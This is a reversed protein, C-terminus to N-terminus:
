PSRNQSNSLKAHRVEQEIESTTSKQRVARKYISLGPCYSVARGSENAAEPRVYLGANDFLWLWDPAWGTEVYATAKACQFNRADTVYQAAVLDFPYFGNLGVSEQWFELWGGAAEAIWAGAAGEDAIRDLDTPTLVWDRAAEYPILTIPVDTSLLFRAAEPDKRFNLDSFVPGHGFLIGHSKGESPHFLHGPHRGMVAIIRKVNKALSPNLRLTTAINTLPGLALITMHGQGLADALAATASTPAPESNALPEPAGRTVDPLTHGTAALKSVLHRTTRDTVEIDANGFVTSIGAITMGDTDAHALAFLALCDDPDSRRSHGCAADTDIWLRTPMSFTSPATPFEVPDPEGTRWSQVPLAFTGLGLAIIGVFAAIVKVM